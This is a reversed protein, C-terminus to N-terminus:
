AWHSIERNRAQAQLIRRLDVPASRALFAPIASERGSQSGAIEDRAFVRQPFYAATSFGTITAVFDRRRMNVKAKRRMSSSDEGRYRDCTSM